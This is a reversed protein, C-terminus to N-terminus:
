NKEIASPNSSQFFVMVANVLKTALSIGVRDLAALPDPFVPKGNADKTCRLALLYVLKVNSGNANLEAWCYDGATPEHVYYTEDIHQVVVPVPQTM